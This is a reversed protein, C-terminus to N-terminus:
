RLAGLKVHIEALERAADSEWVVGGGVGYCWGSATRSATRILLSAVTRAGETLGLTGCYFGRPAPELTRILATAMRKPAGTVSGGPHLAELIQATTTTPFLEGEVDSVTQLAYALALQRRPCAVRVTRPRCLAALDNRMLDTIMALEARDKASHELAEAQGLPATGKMPEVRLRAGDREFFLEPSASVLERGDPLRLWCLFRPIGRRCLAALLAAGDVPPLLARLTLNVQYVDGAAIAERIREVGAAHGADALLPSLAPAPLDLELETFREVPGTFAEAQPATGEFPLVFLRPAADAGDLACPTLAPFWRWAGGGFGPGLLAWGSQGRLASLKM